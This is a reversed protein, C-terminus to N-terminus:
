MGIKAAYKALVQRLIRWSIDSYTKFKKERHPNIEDIYDFIDRTDLKPAAAAAVRPLDDPNLYVHFSAAYNSSDNLLNNPGVPKPGGDMPCFVKHVAFRDGDLWACQGPTLTVLGVKEAEWALQGYAMVDIQGALSYIIGTTQGHSHMPSYHQATWLELVVPSGFDGLHEPEAPGEAANVYAAALHDFDGKGAPAVRPPHTTDVEARRRSDASCGDGPAISPPHRGPRGPRSVSSAGFAWSM